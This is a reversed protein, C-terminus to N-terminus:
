FRPPNAMLLVCSGTEAGDIVGGTLAQASNQAIKQSCCGLWGADNFLTIAAGAVKQNTM